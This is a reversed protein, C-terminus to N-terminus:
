PLSQSRAASGSASLVQRALPPDDTFIGDVGLEFMRLMDSESNVTYVHVRKGRKHAAQVLAPTVDGKEPHIADYGVLRGFWGRSWAGSKGGLALLGLPIQPAARRARLLAMPNFSSFMVKGILDHERVLAVVKEPLDDMTSIYNTLEVNIFLKGGVAEFVEALTPIKENRFAIDFHSGADLEKLASLKMQSVYGTGTTTRDVTIDHIVVVQGDACLKADLEIAEAGHQIALQFAALTNEPAHASSGRHAFLTPRPLATYM